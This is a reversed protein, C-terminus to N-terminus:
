KQAGVLHTNTGKSREPPIRGSGVSSPQQEFHTDYLPAAHFFGKEPFGAAGLYDFQDIDRLSTWFPENNYFADWDRMAQDYLPVAETNRCIDCHATVGGPKLVRYSEKFIGRMAAYSIEHLLIMSVVLDFSEDEFMTLNTADAQVFKINDVGMSKARAAAYRLVPAGVDVAIVEADPFARALSVTSHGITCGLDLIRKPALGPFRENVVAAISRGKGDLWPDNDGGITVFFGCDYNAGNTVDGQFNEQYYSGPMCHHHVETVYRPIKLDPNLVLNDGDTLEAAKEALSEAQRLAVWRGAQQRQEMNARKFASYTQFAPDNLLAKRIENRHEPKRGLAQELKPAVRAYYAKEVNPLMRERVYRNVHALYNFRECEDHQTEPFMGHRGQTRYDRPGNYVSVPVADNFEGSDDMCREQPLAETKGTGSPWGVGTGMIGFNLM